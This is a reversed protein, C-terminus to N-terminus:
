QRAIRNLLRLYQQYAQESQRFSQAGLNNASTPAGIGKISQGQAMAKDFNTMEVAGNDILDNLISPADGNLLEDELTQANGYTPLCTALALITTSLLVKPYTEM